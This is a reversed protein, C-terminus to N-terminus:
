LKIEVPIKMTFNAGQGHTSTASISAGHADMIGRAIALGMGTGSRGAASKGRHFRHFVRPLEEASIGPGHDQVSVELKSDKLEARLVIETGAQSYNAANDLIIALVQAMLREDWRVLPLNDPVELTVQHNALTEACRELVTTIMEPVTSWEKVVRCEGADIRAMELLNQVLRGLRVVEEKIITHFEKKAEENWQVDTSLLNEVATQISTLPTRLDHSVSALIASKLQDSQKLAETQSLEYLLRTREQALTVLGALAEVVAPETRESVCILVGTVKEGAKLPACTLFAEKTKLQQLKGTRTATQILSESVDVPSQDSNAAYAIRNWGAGEPVVISCAQMNFIRIINEVFSQAATEHEPIALMVCSMEYLTSLEERRKESEEARRRALSSLHNAAIATVLFVAFAVLDQPDHITLTHFPALFFFNFSVACLISAFVGPLFGYTGAVLPILLFTLAVTVVTVSPVIAKFSVTVIAVAVFMVLFRGIMRKM